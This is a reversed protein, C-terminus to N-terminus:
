QVKNALIAENLRSFIRICTRLIEILANRETILTAFKTSITTSQETKIQSSVQDIQNTLHEFEEKILEKQGDKLTNISLNGDKLEEELAQIKEIVENSLIYKKTKSDPTKPLMKKIELLAKTQATMMDVKAGYERLKEEQMKIVPLGAKHLLVHCINIKERNKVLLDYDANSLPEGREKKAQVEALTPAVDQLQNAADSLDKDIKQFEEPINEQPQLKIKVNDLIAKTTHTDGSNPNSKSAVLDATKQLPALKMKSIEDSKACSTVNFLNNEYQNINNAIGWTSSHEHDTRTVKANKIKLADQEDKKLQELQELQGEDLQDKNLAVDNEDTNLHIDMNM